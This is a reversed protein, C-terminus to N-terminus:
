KALVLTLRGNDFSSRLLTRAAIALRREFRGHPIEMRRIATGRLAPPFRCEGSVILMQAEFAIDVQEPVVGPLAILVFFESASEFVDLPPVWCTRGRAGGAPEFFRQQLREARELAALADAWMREPFESNGM